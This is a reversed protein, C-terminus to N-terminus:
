GSIYLHLYQSLDPSMLKEKVSINTSLRLIYFTRHLENGEKQIILDRQM